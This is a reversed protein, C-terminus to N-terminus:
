GQQNLRDLTTIVHRIVRIDKGFGSEDNTDNRFSHYLNGHFGFAIFIKRASRPAQASVASILLLIMLGIASCVAALSFYQLTHFRNRSM